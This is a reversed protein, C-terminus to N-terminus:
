YLRMPYFRVVVWAVGYGIAFAIIFPSLAIQLAFKKM